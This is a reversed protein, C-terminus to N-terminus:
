RPILIYTSDIKGAERYNENVYKEIKPMYSVLNIGSTTATPDLFIVKPPDKKIGELVRDEAVLSFWPFQFVFLKGPPLTKTLYYLHPSTGMVFITDGEDAYMRTEAVLKKEFSGYFPSSKHWSVKYFPVLLYFLSFLYILALPLKFPVNRTFIYLTFLIAFPLAPQLHVFDFRAYAFVLSFIFILWLLWFSANKRFIFSLFGFGFLPLIRVLEGRTAFKRGMEAFVTVNFTYTWYFFDNWVGIKFFYLVMLLPAFSFGLFYFLTTKFSRNKLFLIAGVVLGLPAIVQKFVLAIGFLFGAIFHQKPSTIIKGKTDYLSYVGALLFPVVMNDIWFVYGELFPQWVVYLINCLLAKKDSKFLKRALLFLLIHNAALFLWSVVQMETVTDIGLTAFNIPFFLIGPFHQDLIHAYPLLGSKTLYTYIFIEPYPFFVIQSLLLIHTAIVLFLALTTYNSIKSKLKNMKQLIISLGWM